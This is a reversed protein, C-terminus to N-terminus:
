YHGLLIDRSNSVWLEHTASNSAPHRRFNRSSIPGVRDLCIILRMATQSPFTIEGPYENTADLYPHPWGGQVDSLRPWTRTPRLHHAKVWRLAFDDHDLLVEISFGVIWGFLLLGLCERRLSNEVPGYKVKMPMDFGM